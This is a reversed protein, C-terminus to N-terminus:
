KGASPKLEEFGNAGIVNFGGDNNDRTFGDYADRALYIRLSDGESPRGRHGSTDPPPLGGGTWRKSWYRVYILEGAEIGEGKEVNDVSLEAVYHTYDWKGRKVERSYIATVEGSVVHTATKRLQEPTLDVKEARIPVAPTVLVVLSVLLLWRSM